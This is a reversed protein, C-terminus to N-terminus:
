PKRADSILAVVIVVTAAVLVVLSVSWLRAANPSVWLVILILTLGTLSLALLTRLITHSMQTGWM